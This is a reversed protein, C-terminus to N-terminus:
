ILCGSLWFSLCVSLYFWVSVSVFLCLSLCFCLSLSVSLFVSMSVSVVRNAGVSVCPVLQPCRNRADVGTCQRSLAVPAPSLVKKLVDPSLTFAAGCYQTGKTYFIEGSEVILGCGVTDGVSNGWQSCFSWEVGGPNMHSFLRGDSRLGYGHKKGLPTGSKFQYGPILGVSVFGKDIKKIVIEFFFYKAQLPISVDACISATHSSHNTVENCKNDITLFNPINTTRLQSPFQALEPQPM